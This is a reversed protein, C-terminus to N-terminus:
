LGQDRRGLREGPGGVEGSRLGATRDVLLVLLHMPQMLGELM